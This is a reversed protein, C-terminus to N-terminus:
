GALVFIFFSHCEVCIQMKCVCSSMSIVSVYHFAKLQLLLRLMYHVEIRAVSTYNICRPASMLQSAENYGLKM